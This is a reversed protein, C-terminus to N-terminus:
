ECAVCDYCHYVLHGVGYKRVIANYADVYLRDSESFDELIQFLEAFITCLHATTVLDIDDVFNFIGVTFRLAAAAQLKDESRLLLMTRRLSRWVEDIDHVIDDHRKIPLRSFM